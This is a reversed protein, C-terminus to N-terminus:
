SSGMSNWCVLLADTLFSSLVGFSNGVTNIVNSQEDYLFALPGGPFGRFDIWTWENFEMNVSVNVTAGVFLLFVYVM